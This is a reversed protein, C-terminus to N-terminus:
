MKQKRKIEFFKMRFKFCNIYNSKKKLKHLTLFNSRIPFLRQLKEEHYFTVNNFSYDTKNVVEM